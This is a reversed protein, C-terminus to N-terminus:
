CCWEWGCSLHDRELSCSIDLIVVALWKFSVHVYVYCNKGAPQSWPGNLVVMEGDWFPKKEYSPHESCEKRRHLIMLSLLLSWLWYPHNSQVKTIGKPRDWMVGHPVHHVMKVNGWVKNVDTFVDVPSWRLGDLLPMLCPHGSLGRSKLRTRSPIRGTMLLKEPYWNQHHVLTWHMHLHGKCWWGGFLQFWCYTASSWSNCTNQSPWPPVLHLLHPARELFIYLWKFWGNIHLGENLGQFPLVWICTFVQTDLQRPLSPIVHLVKGILTLPPQSSHVNGEPLIASILSTLPSSTTSSIQLQFTKLSTHWVLCM